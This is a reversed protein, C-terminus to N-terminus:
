IGGIPTPPIPTPPIATPVSRGQFGACNITIDDLGITIRDLVTADSTMSVSENLVEWAEECEGLLYHAWGRLYWCEVETSGLEACREFSEISSEYNRRPYQVQGLARWATAYNPNIELAKDCYAEADDFVGVATYTECIRLYAKANNPDIEIIRLFIAVAMEPRDLRRYQAALEFYPSTLRPNISVATELQEIAEDSRGLLILPYSYARHANANYPDQQIATAGRELGERYRGIQTYAIALVANLPAYTPDEELGRVAIPIANQPDSWQLARAKLAYGRPDEPALDIMQDGIQIVEDNRSSSALDLDILELIIQGYEYLYNINEPQLQVAEALEREAALVNGTRFSEVGSFARDSALLTPTPAMGVVDLAALQLRDFEVYVFALFVGILLGFLFLQRNSDRRKGLFFRSQNRRIRTYPRSM